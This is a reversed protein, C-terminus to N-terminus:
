RWPCHYRSLFPFPAHSSQAMSVQAAPKRRVKLPCERPRLSSRLRFRWFRFRGGPVITGRYFHFRFIPRSRLPCKDARRRRSGRLCEPPRLSSRLRFRWFRFRGGPVITGRYFHFRFIPRSRWRCKNHSRQPTARRYVPQRRSSRLRCLWPRCRDSRLM